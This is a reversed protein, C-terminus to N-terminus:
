RIWAPLPETAELWKAPIHHDGAALVGAVIAGVTDVDEARQAVTWLAEEFSTHHRAAIWLAFPVTDHAAMERGTGLRAAAVRVPANLLAVASEVGTRVQGPPVLPIVGRLLAEGGLNPTVARLSAAVAVAVAGAVGEFYAHTVEASQEAERLVRPLDPGHFAGLPAVRMAAGNGWSGGKFANVALERWSGGGRFQNLLRETGSGYGRDADYHEVFSAALADQDIRGHRCLVAYISCAMETDDTWGWPAPPPKRAVVDPHDGPLGFQAGFADGVALGRLSALAQEVTM